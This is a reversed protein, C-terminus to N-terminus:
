RGLARRAAVVKERQPDSRLGGVQGRIPHGVNGGFNGQAKRNAVVQERSPTASHQGKHMGPVGYDRTGGYITDLGFAIADRTSLNARLARRMQTKFDTTMAM